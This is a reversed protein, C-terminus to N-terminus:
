MLLEDIEKLQLDLDDDLDINLPAQALGITEKKSSEVTAGTSKINPPNSELKPAISEISELKRPTSETSEIKPPLSEKQERMRKERMIEDFSKVQFDLKVSKEKLPAKVEMPRKKLSVITEPVFPKSTPVLKSESASKHKSVPLPQVASPQQPEKAAM